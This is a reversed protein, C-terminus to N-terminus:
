QCKISCELQVMAHHDVPWVMVLGAEEPSYSWSLSLSNLFSTM